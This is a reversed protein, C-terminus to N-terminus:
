LRILLPKTYIFLTLAFNIRSKYVLTHFVSIFRMVEKVAALFPAPLNVEALRCAFWHEFARQLTFQVTEEATTFTYQTPDHSCV